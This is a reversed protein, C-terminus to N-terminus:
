AIASFSDGSTFMMAIPIGLAVLLAFAALAPRFMNSTFRSTQRATIQAMIAGKISEPVPLSRLSTLEDRVNNFQSLESVCEPCSRLHEEIFEQQTNGLEGNSFASLLEKIQEHNM